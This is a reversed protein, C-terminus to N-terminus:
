KQFTKVTDSSLFVGAIPRQYDVRHQSSGNTISAQVLLLLFIVGSLWNAFVVPKFTQLRSSELQM